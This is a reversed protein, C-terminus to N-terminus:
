ASRPRSSFSVGLRETWGLQYALRLISGLLTLHNAVTKKNLHIKEAKYRDVAMLWAAHDNLLLGGFFPELQRLMSLDDQHSRKQPSRNAKWYASAQLFARPELAPARIGKRREEAEVKAKKLALAATSRECFTKSQRVGHEDM